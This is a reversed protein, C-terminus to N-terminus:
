KAAEKAAGATATAANAVGAAIKGADVVTTDEKAPEAPKENEYGAKVYTDRESANVIIKDEGKVMTITEILM